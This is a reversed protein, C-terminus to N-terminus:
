WLPWVKLPLGLGYVFVGVAMAALGLSLAAVELLRFEPGSLSCVAILALVAVALGLSDIGLAFLVVAGLVLILPRRAFGGVPERGASFLGRALIALGLAATVGGLVTPFYGPGMRAISGLPYNRATAVALLGLLIFILGAYFDKAAAPNVKGAPANERQPPPGSAESAPHATGQFSHRLIPARRSSLGHNRKVIKGM